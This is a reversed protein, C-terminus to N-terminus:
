RPSAGPVHRSGVRQLVAFGTRVGPIDGLVEGHLEAWAHFSFRGGVSSRQRAVVVEAPQGLVSLYTALAFSRPLCLAEPAVLRLTLLCPLVERRALGISAPPSLVAAFASAPHTDILRRQAEPWGRRRLVRVAQATRIAALLRVRPPVPPPPPTRDTDWLLHEWSATPRERVHM